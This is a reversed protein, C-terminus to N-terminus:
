SRYVFVPNLYSVFYSSFHFYSAVVRFSSFIYELEHEAFRYLNLSNSSYGSSTFYSSVQEQTCLSQIYTDHVHLTFEMATINSHMSGPCQDSEHPYRVGNVHAKQEPQQGLPQVCVWCTHLCQCLASLM